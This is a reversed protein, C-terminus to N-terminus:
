NIKWYQTGDNKRYLLKRSILERRLLAVDNFAHYKEIIKNVDNESYNKRQKFKNSLWELIRKKDNYKKPWRIIRDFENILETM